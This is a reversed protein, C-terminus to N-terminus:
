AFSTRYLDPPLTPSIGENDDRYWSSNINTSPDGDTISVRYIEDPLYASKDNGKEIYTASIGIQQSARPAKMMASSYVKSCDFLMKVGLICYGMCVIRPALLNSIRSRRVPSWTHPMCKYSRFGFGCNRKSRSDGYRVGLLTSEFGLMGCRWYLLRGVPPTSQKRWVFDEAESINKWRRISRKYSFIRITCYCSFVSSHQKDHEAQFFAQESGKHPNFSIKDM